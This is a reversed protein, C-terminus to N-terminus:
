VNGIPQGHVPVNGLSDWDWDWARMCNSERMEEEQGRGQTPSLELLLIYKLGGEEEEWEMGKIEYITTTGDFDTPFKSPFQSHVQGLPFCFKNSIFPDLTL